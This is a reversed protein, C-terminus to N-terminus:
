GYKICNNNSGSSTLELEISRITRRLWSVQVQTVLLLSSSGNLLIDVGGERFTECPPPPTPLAIPLTPPEIALGMRFNTFRGAGTWIFRLPPAAPFLLPSFEAVEEGFRGDPVCRCDGCINPALPLPGLRCRDNLSRSFSPIVPLKEQCYTKNFTKEM